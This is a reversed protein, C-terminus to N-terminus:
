KYYIFNFIYEILENPIINKVQLRFTDEKNKIVNNKFKMICEQQICSQILYQLYRLTIGLSYGSHFNDRDVMCVIQKINDNNDTDSFLFGKNKDPRYIYLFRLLLPDKLLLNMTQIQYNLESETNIFKKRSEYEHLLIDFIRKRIINIIFTM